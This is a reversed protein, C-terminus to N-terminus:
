RWDDGSLDEAGPVVHGDSPAEDRDGFIMASPYITENLVGRSVAAGSAIRRKAVHIGVSVERRLAPHLVRLISVPFEFEVPRLYLILAGWMAFAFSALGHQVAIAAHFAIGLWLMYKWHRREM